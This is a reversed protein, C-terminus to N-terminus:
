ASPRREGEGQRDTADRRVKSGDEEEVVFKSHYTEELKKVMEREFNKSAQLAKVLVIVNKGEPEPSSDDELISLIVIPKAYGRQCLHEILWVRDRGPLKIDVLAVDPPMHLFDHVANEARAYDKRPLFGATM